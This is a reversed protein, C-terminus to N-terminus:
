SVVLYRGLEKLEPIKEYVPPKKDHLQRDLSATKVYLENVLDTLIGINVPFNRAAMDRLVKDQEPNGSKKGFGNSSGRSVMSKINPTLKQRAQYIFHAAAIIMEYLEDFQFGQAKYYDSKTTLGDLRDWESQSIELILLAQRIFRNNVNNQYHDGIKEVIKFIEPDKIPV